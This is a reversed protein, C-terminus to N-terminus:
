KSEESARLDNLLRAFADEFSVDDKWNSFDPMFYGRIEAALDTGADPDFLTWTKIEELPVLRIPFLVRRKHQMEKRKASRIETKVWNSRMSNKSIVLMFKYYVRIAMDIQSYIEQGGQMAEPAYWVRLSEQKMRSYLKHAFDQDNTSYSIFCSDFQIPDLM